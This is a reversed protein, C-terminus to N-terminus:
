FNMLIVPPLLRDSPPLTALNVFDDNVTVAYKNSLSLPVTQWTQSLRAMVYYRAIIDETLVM